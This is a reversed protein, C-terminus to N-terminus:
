DGAPLGYHRRMRRMFLKNRKFLFIIQFRLFAVLSARVSVHRFVGLADRIRACYQRVSRLPVDTGFLYCNQINEFLIPNVACRDLEFCFFRLLEASAGHAAFFSQVDAFTRIIGLTKRYASELQFTTASTASDENRCYNYMCEPVVCVQTSFSLFKLVFNVDEFYRSAEFFRLEDHVQLFSRRFLKNSSSNFQVPHLTKLQRLSYACPAQRSPFPYGRIGCIVMDADSEKAAAYMTELMRTDISDDADPFIVYEGTALPIGTNRAKSVGSNQIKTYDIRSDKRAFEACIASSGDTSGDDILIIQINRLTQALFSSICETLFREKNYVPCIISVAPLMPNQLM